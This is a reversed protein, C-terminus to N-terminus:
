DWKEKRCERRLQDSNLKSCDVKGSSGYKRERCEKRADDSGLKSCDVDKSNQERCEQRARDNDIDSCDKDKATAFSTAFTLIAIPLLKVIRMTM